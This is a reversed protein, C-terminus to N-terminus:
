RPFHQDSCGHHIPDPRLRTRRDRVRPQNSPRHAPWDIECTVSRMLEDTHLSGKMLLEGKAKHILEVATAAAAESHLADVMEFGSIDFNHQAAVAKIKAAPGM